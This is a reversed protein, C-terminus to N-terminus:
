CKTSKYKYITPKPSPTTATSTAMTRCAQVKSSTHVSSSDRYCNSRVTRVRSQPSLLLQSAQWLLRQTKLRIIQHPFLNSSIHSHHRSRRRQSAYHPKDHNLIGQNGPVKHIDNGARLHTHRLQLEQFKVKIRADRRRIAERRTRLDLMKGYLFSEGLGLNRSVSPRRHEKVSCALNQEQNVCVSYKGADTDPSHLVPSKSAFYSHCHNGGKAFSSDGGVPFDVSTDSKVDAKQDNNVNDCCLEKTDYGMAEWAEADGLSSEGDNGGKQSSSSLGVPAEPVHVNRVMYHVRKPRKQFHQKGYFQFSEPSPSKESSDKVHCNPNGKRRILKLCTTKKM